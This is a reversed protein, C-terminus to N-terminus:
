WHLLDETYFRLTLKLIKLYLNVKIARFQDLSAHEGLRIHSIYHLSRREVIFHTSSITVKGPQSINKDSVVWTIVDRRHALLRSHTRSVHLANM